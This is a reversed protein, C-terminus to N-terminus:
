LQCCHDLWQGDSFGTDAAPPSQRVTSSLSDQLVTRAEEASL